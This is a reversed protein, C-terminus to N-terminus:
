EFKAKCTQKNQNVLNGFTNGNCCFARDSSSTVDCCGALNDQCSASDRRNDLSFIVDNPGRGPYFCNFHVDEIQSDVYPYYVHRQDNLFPCHIMETFTDGAAPFDVRPVLCIPEGAPLSGDGRKGEDITITAM